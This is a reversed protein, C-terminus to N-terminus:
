PAPIKLMRGIQMLRPELGPNARLLDALKIGYKRAISSPTEGSQVKHERVSAHGASGPDSQDNGIPVSGAGGAYQQRVPGPQYVPSVNTPTRRSGYYARWKEVEERLQRNQEALQELERQVGPTTPMPLIGKALEQKSRYIRQGIAQANEADPRLRLYQQYHFIAAAPDPNKDEYLIGLELHAAASRPNVELAKQFADIAGRYDM